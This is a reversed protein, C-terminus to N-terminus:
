MFQKVQRNTLWEIRAEKYNNRRKRNRYICIKILALVFFLGMFPALCLCIVFTTIFAGKERLLIDGDDTKTVNLWSKSYLHLTICNMPLIFSSGIEMSCFRYTRNQSLKKMLSISGNEGFNANKLCKKHGNQNQEFGVLIMNKPQILANAFEGTLFIGKDNCQPYPSPLTLTLSPIIIDASCKIVITTGYKYLDNQVNENSQNMRFQDEAEDNLKTTKEANLENRNSVDVKIPEMKEVSIENKVSNERNILVEEVGMLLLFENGTTIVKKDPIKTEGHVEAENITKETKKVDANEEGGNPVQAGNQAEDAEKKEKSDKTGFDFIGELVPESVVSQSTCLNDCEDISKHAREKPTKCLINGYTLTQQVSLLYQRLHEMKCDCHWPNSKLTLTGDKKFGSFINKSLSKMNNGKLNLAELTGFHADFANRGIWMIKDNALILWKMAKVRSFTTSTITNGLNCREIKIESLDYLDVTGFLNEVNIKDKGCENMEFKRLRPTQQLANKEFTSLEARTMSLHHLNTLGNFTGITIKQLPFDDIILETLHLFHKSDFANDDIGNLYISKLELYQLNTRVSLWGYSLKEESPTETDIYLKELTLNLKYM